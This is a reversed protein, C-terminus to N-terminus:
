FTIDHVERLHSIVTEQTMKEGCHRCSMGSDPWGFLLDGTAAYGYGDKILHPIIHYQCAKGNGCACNSM